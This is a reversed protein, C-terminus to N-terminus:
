LDSASWTSLKLASNPEEESGVCPPRDAYGLLMPRVQPPDGRILRQGDRRYRVECRDVM